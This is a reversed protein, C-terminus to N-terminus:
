FPAKNKNKLKYKIKRLKRIEFLSDKHKEKFTEWKKKQNLKGKESERYKKSLANVKEKNNSQWVKAREAIKAKNNERYKKQYCKDCQQQKPKPIEECGENKCIREM